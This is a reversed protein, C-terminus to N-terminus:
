SARDPSRDVRASAGALLGSRSPNMFKRVIADDVRQRSEQHLRTVEVLVDGLLRKVEGTLMRGSRYADGIAQLEEDDDHWIHLYQYAVDISLDAGHERQEKETACGGSFAYKNIKRRITREDDTVYISTREDSASMKTQNGTLAPIFKSHILAPKPWRLRQAADRTMRFYPDQDIAQPILCRMGAPLLNPFAVAFSPAAQIAPFAIKGINDSGSFGFVGKAQNFTVCKQIQLAVPYLCRIHDTDLFIFTKAPDFGVAIIDRANEFGLRRAEELSMNDKFLFKEDDTLEIVLPADFADQLWKTFHFPVLHGLHLSESSPGRGTYLYFPEGSEYRDLLEELDRHAFFLGRRLFRHAPRRTLREVRAIIEPRIPSCGFDEILKSYNVGGKGAEVEWPTVIQEESTRFSDTDNSDASAKCHTRGTAFFRRAPGVGLKGQGGFVRRLHEVHIPLFQAVPYSTRSARFSFKRVPLSPCSHPCQPVSAVLRSSGEGNARLITLGALGRQDLHRLGFVSARHQRMGAGGERVLVAERAVHSRPVPVMRHVFTGNRLGRSHCFTDGADRQLRGEQQCHAAVHRRCSRLGCVLHLM